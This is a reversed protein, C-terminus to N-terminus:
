PNLVLAKSACYRLDNFSMIQETITRFNTNVGKKNNVDKIWFRRTIPHIAAVVKNDLIRKITCVGDTRAPKLELGLKKLITNVRCLTFHM